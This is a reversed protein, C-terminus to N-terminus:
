TINKLYTLEDGEILERGTIEGSIDPRFIGKGFRNEGRFIRAEDWLGTNIFSQLLATGGEVMVSQINRQFLATLLDSLYTPGPLIRVYELHNKKQDKLSNIVLTPASNDFLCSAAPLELHTDLVIRLPQAGKWDRVTLQPDDYLATNKGVMVADEESRWKHVLTRSYINSIWKSDYNERAIFGDSTEAWKLLIYPRQKQIFTFFRQNLSRGREALLGTNVEIGASNLRATGKGNVSPNPDINAIWVKRFPFQIILDACPPTKGFHACPELTVFMEAGQFLSKDKVANIANVEAHPGGFREHWGEGIIRDQQVIVCGVMPNPSVKGAGLAAIELARLM